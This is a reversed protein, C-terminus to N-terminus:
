GGNENDDENDNNDNDNGDDDDNHNDDNNRNDDDNDNDDENHNGDDNGNDDGGDDNDNDDNANNDDGGDDNMNGDDDNGNDDNMNSDDDNGNDDDNANADDNINSDDNSNDDNANADDDNANLDDNANTDDNGNDDNANAGDNLNSDNDNANGNLNGNENGNVNGEGQSAQLAQEVAPRVLAPAAALLENLSSAYRALADNVRLNLEQARAPDSSATVRVAELAQNIHYQFADATADVRDYRAADILVGLESLRREAFQLHLEAEAAANGALDLRTNELGTKVGYLADGPLSDQAAVATVGAGGLIIALVMVAALAVIAFRNSKRMEELEERISQYIRQYWPLRAATMANLAALYRERSRQEAAPDRDPVSKLLNLLSEIEPDTNPDPNNKHDRSNSM